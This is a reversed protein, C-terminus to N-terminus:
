NIKKPLPPPQFFYVISYYYFFNYIFVFCEIFREIAFKPYFRVLQQM